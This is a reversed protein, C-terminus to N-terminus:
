LQITGGAGGGGGGGGGWPKLLVPAIWDPEKRANYIAYSALVSLKSLKQYHGKM